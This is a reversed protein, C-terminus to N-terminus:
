QITDPPTKFHAATDEAAGQLRTLYELISGVEIMNPLTHGGYIPKNRLESALSLMHFAHEEFVYPRLAIPVHDKIMHLATAVTGAVVGHMDVKGFKDACDNVVYANLSAVLFQATDFSRKELKDTDGKSQPMSFMTTIVAPKENDNM